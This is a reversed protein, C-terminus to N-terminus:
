EKSLSAHADWKVAPFVSASRLVLGWHDLASPWCTDSHVNPPGDVGQNVPTVKRPPLGCLDRPTVLHCENSDVFSRVRARARACVCVCVCVCVIM